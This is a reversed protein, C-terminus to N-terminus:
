NHTFVAAVAVDPGAGSKWPVFHWSHLRYGARHKAALDAKFQKLSDYTKAIM